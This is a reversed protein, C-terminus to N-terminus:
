RYTLRFVEIESVTFYKSETFRITGIGNSHYSCPFNTYSDNNSNCNDSIHLDHGGGFTPGYNRKGLPGHGHHWPFRAPPINWPNTLSFLFSGSAKQFNGSSEWSNPNYGGFIYGSSSKVVSITSGSRNCRSHFTSASFGDRTGRYLLIWVYRITFCRQLFEHHSQNLLLSGAMLPNDNLYHSFPCPINDNKRKQELAKEKESARVKEIEAKLQEIRIQNELDKIKLEAEHKAKLLDIKHKQKLIIVANQAENIAIIAEPPLQVLQNNQSSTNQSTTFQQTSNEDNVKALLANAAIKEIKLENALDDVQVCKLAELTYIGGEELPKIVSEFGNKILFELFNHEMQYTREM